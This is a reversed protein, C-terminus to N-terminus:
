MRGPPTIASAVGRKRSSRSRKQLWIGVRFAPGLLPPAWYGELLQVLRYQLPQLTISLAAAVIIIAAGGKLGLRETAASVNPTNLAKHPADALVVLAVTGMALVTPVLGVIQLRAGFSKIADVVRARM